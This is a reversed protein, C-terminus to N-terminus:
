LLLRGYFGLEHHCWWISVNEGNSAVTSLLCDFPQRNSVGDHANHRWLLKWNLGRKMCSSKNFFFVIDVILFSLGESSMKCIVSSVSRAGFYRPYTSIYMVNIETAQQRSKQTHLFGRIWCFYWRCEVTYIVANSQRWLSRSLTELWWGRPQKSLRKNLRRDFFVDFSRTVPRQTPFEGPGTFEGCLPGTVRFINGNSSTMMLSNLNVFLFCWLETNNAKKLPFWSTMMTLM